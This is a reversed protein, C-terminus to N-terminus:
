ILYGKVLKQEKIAGPVLRPVKTHQYVISNLHHRAFCHEWLCTLCRKDVSFNLNKKFKSM